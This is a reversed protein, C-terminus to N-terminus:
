QYQFVRINVQPNRSIRVVEAGEHEAAVKDGIEYLYGALARHLDAAQPDHRLAERIADIALPASGSWHVDVYFNAM